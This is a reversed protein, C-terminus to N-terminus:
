QWMEQDIARFGPEALARNLDQIARPSVPPLSAAWEEWSRCDPDRDRLAEELSQDIFRSLPLGLLAARAKAKRLIDDRIEVTTKM